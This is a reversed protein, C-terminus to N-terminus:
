HTAVLIAVGIRLTKASLAKVIYFSTALTAGPFRKTNSRVQPLSTIFNHINANKAAEIIEQMEVDRSTDGYAINDAITRDFLVPEQSVIGLQSRLLTMTMDSINRGEL